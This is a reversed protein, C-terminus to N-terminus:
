HNLRRAKTGDVPIDAPPEPDKTYDRAKEGSTWFRERIILINRRLEMLPEYLEHIEGKWVDSTWNKQKEDLDLLMLFVDSYHELNRVDKELEEEDALMKAIIANINQNAHELMDERSPM